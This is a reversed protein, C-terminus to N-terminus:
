VNEEVGFKGSVISSEEKGSDGSERFNRWKEMLHFVVQRELDEDVIRGTHSHALWQVTM